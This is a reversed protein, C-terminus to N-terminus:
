NEIEEAAEAEATAKGSKVKAKHVEHKQTKLTEFKTKQDATLFANVTTDFAENNTKMQGYIDKRSEPTTSGKLMDRLRQNVMTRKLAAVEWQSTQDANLGLNKQAWKAAHKAHEEPTKASQQNVPAAAKGTATQANSLTTLTTVFVLSLIIKKM